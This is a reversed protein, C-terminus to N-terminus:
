TKGGDKTLTLTFPRRGKVDLEMFLEPSVADALSTGPTPNIGTPVTGGGTCASAVPPIDADADENTMIQWIIQTVRAVAPRPPGLEFGFSCPSEFPSGSNGCGLSISDGDDFRVEGSTAVATTTAGTITISQAGLVAGAGRRLSYALSGSSPGAGTLFRMGRVVGLTPGWLGVVNSETASWGASDSGFGHYSDVNNSPALADNVFLNCKGVDGHMLASSCSIALATPGSVPVIARHVVDGPSLPLSGTWVAGTTAWNGDTLSARTDVTGGSGDQAVGNVYVLCTYSKGVGPSAFSRSDHRTMTCASAIVDGLVNGIITVPTSRTGTFAPYFRTSGSNGSTSSSWSYNMLGATDPWFEVVVIQGESGAIHASADGKFSTMDGPSVSVTHTTDTNTQNPDSSAVTVSLSTDALAKRFTMSRTLGGSLTTTVKLRLNKYTGAVSQPAWGFGESANPIVGNLSAYTVGRNWTDRNIIPRFYAM